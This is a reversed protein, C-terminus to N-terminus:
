HRLLSSVRVTLREEFDYDKIQVTQLLLKRGEEKTEPAEVLISALEYQAFALIHVDKPHGKQNLETRSQICERLMTDAESSRGLILYCAGQILKSVGKMPEEAPSELNCDSIIQLLDEKTCSALSNWLYLMEYVFLKWFRTSCTAFDDRGPFCSARKTLFEDLQNAKSSTRISVVMEELSPYDTFANRSGKCICAIYTYFPRSWRSWTALFSFKSESNEFDLQILYCWGVEHLSLLKIERQNANKVSAQFASLASPIDSNLRCLRGRFFLFLASDGFEERTEHILVESVRAGARVNTGDLAYYPRVICHYWLLSLTALPARMDVGLRSYMLCSLGHARSGGLGLFSTLRLLAPPLLSVGLQLIGYGFTVANMLRIIVKKNLPTDSTKGNSTTKFAEEDSSLITRENKVVNDSSRSALNPDPLNLIGIESNYLNLIDTYTSHYLKWAKRLVWGAKLYGSIDQQLFVLVALCVQSDALIIQTELTETLTPEEETTGFMKNKVMKFWGRTSCRQEVEKLTSIAKTLKEEEFSMLADMFVAFSYGSFMVLSEPYKMFLEEAEKGRNNILLKLGEKALIWESEGGNERSASAM